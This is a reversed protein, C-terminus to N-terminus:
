FKMEHHEKYTMNEKWNDINGCNEGSAYAIV